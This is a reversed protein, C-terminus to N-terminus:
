LVDNGTANNSAQTFHPSSNHKKSVTMNISYSIIVKLIINVKAHNSPLVLYTKWFLNLKM